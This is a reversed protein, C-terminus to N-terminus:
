GGGTDARRMGPVPRRNCGHPPLRLKRLTGHSPARRPAGQAPWPPPIHMRFICALIGGAAAPLMNLLGRHEACWSIHSTLLDVLAALVVIVPLTVGLVPGYSRGHWLCRRHIRRLTKADDISSLNQELTRSM